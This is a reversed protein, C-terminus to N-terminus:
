KKGRHTPRPAKEIRIPKSGGVFMGGVFLVIPYLLLKIFGLPIFSPLLPELFGQDVLTYDLILTVITCATLFYAQKILDGPEQSPKKGKKKLTTQEFKTFIVLLYYCVPILIWITYFVYNM